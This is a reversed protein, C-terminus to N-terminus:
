KLTSDWFRIKRDVAGVALWRGDPSFAISSPGKAAIPAFRDHTMLFLMIHAASAVVVVAVQWPRIDVKGGRMREAQRQM